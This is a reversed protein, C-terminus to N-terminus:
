KRILWLKEHIYSFVVFISQNISKLAGAKQKIQREGVPSIADPGTEGELGRAGSIGPPGPEGAIGPLGRKGRTGKMGMFGM